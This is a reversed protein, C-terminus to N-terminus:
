KGIERKGEKGENGKKCGLLQLYRGLLRHMIYMRLRAELDWHRAQECNQDAIIENEGEKQSLRGFAM